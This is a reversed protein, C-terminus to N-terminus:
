RFNLEKSVKTIVKDEYRIGQKYTGMKHSNQDIILRHFFLMCMKSVIFEECTKYFITLLVGLIFYLFM